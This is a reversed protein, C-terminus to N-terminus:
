QPLGIPNRLPIYGSGKVATAPFEDVQVMSIDDLYISRNATGTSRSMLFNRGATGTAKFSYSYKIWSTTLTFQRSTNNGGDFLDSVELIPTGSISDVKAWFSMTYYNGDVVPIVQLIFVSSTSGDIDIRTSFGGSHTVTGERNVTSSGSISETWDDLDTASSWSEMSGNVILNERLEVSDWYGFETNTVSGSGFDFTTSTDGAEFGFEIENWGASLGAQTVTVGLAANLDVDVLQSAGNPTSPAFFWGHLWYDAGTVTTITQRAFAQTGDGNLIKLSQTDKFIETTSKSLTTGGDGASYAGTNGLEMDGDAVLNMSVHKNTGTVAAASDNLVIASGSASSITSRVINPPNDDDQVVVAKDAAWSRDGVAETLTLTVTSISSIKQGKHWYVAGTDDDKFKPMWRTDPTVVTSDLSGAGAAYLATVEAASLPRDLIRGYIAGNLDGTGGLIFDSGLIAPTILTASGAVRSGDIYLTLKDTGNTINNNDWVAVVQHSGGATWSSISSLAQYSTANTRIVFHMGFAPNANKQLSFLNSANFTITLLSHGFSDDGDWNPRVWFELTGQNASLLEAVVDSNLSASGVPYQLDDSNPSSPFIHIGNEGTLNSPTLAYYQWDGERLLEQGAIFTSFILLFILAFSAIRKM